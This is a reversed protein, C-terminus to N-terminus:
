YNKTAINTVLRSLDYLFVLLLSVRFFTYKKPLIQPQVVLALLRLQGRGLVDVVDHGKHLLGDVVLRYEGCLVTLLM